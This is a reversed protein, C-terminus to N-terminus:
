SLEAISVTQAIFIPQGCHKIRTEALTLEIRAKNIDSSHSNTYNCVLTQVFDTSHIRYNSNNYKKLLYAVEGGSFAIHIPDRTIAFLPEDFTYLPQLYVGEEDSRMIGLNRLKEIFKVTVFAAGKVHCGKFTGDKDYYNTRDLSLTIDHTKM